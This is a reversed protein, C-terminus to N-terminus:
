KEMAFLLHRVPKPYTIGKPCRWLYSVRWVYQRVEVYAYFYLSNETELKLQPQVQDLLFDPERMDM